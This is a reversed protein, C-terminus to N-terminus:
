LICLFSPAALQENIILLFLWNSLLHGLHWAQRWWLPSKTEMGQFHGMLWVEQFLPIMKLRRQSASFSALNMLFLNLLSLSLLCCIISKLSSKCHNTSFNTLLVWSEKKECSHRVWQTPSDHRNIEVPLWEWIFYQVNFSGLHSSLQLHWASQWTLVLRQSYPIVDCRALSIVAKCSLLLPNVCGSRKLPPRSSSIFSLHCWSTSVASQLFFFFYISCQSISHRQLIELKLVLSDERFGLLIMETEGVSSILGSCSVYGKYLM